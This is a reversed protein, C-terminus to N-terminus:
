EVTITTAQLFREGLPEMGAYTLTRATSSSRRGSIPTPRTSVVTGRQGGIV